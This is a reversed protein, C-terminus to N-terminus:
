EFDIGGKSDIANRAFSKLGTLDTLFIPVVPIVEHDAAFGNTVVPDWGDMNSNFYELFLLPVTGSKGFRRYAYRVGEGNVFLTPATEHSKNMVQKGEPLLRMQQRRKAIANSLRHLRYGLLRLFVRAAACQAACRAM